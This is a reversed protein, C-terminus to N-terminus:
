CHLQPPLRMVMQGDEGVGGGGFFGKEEGGEFVSACLFEASPEQNRTRECVLMFLEDNQYSKQM